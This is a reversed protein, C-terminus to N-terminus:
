IQVVKYNKLRDGEKLHEKLKAYDIMRCLFIIEVAQRKTENPTTVFVRMQILLPTVSM